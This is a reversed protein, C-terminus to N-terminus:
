KVNGVGFLCKLAYKNILEILITFCRINQRDGNYAVTLVFGTVTLVSKCKNIFSKHSVSCDFNKKCM